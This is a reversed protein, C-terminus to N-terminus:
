LGPRLLPSHHLFFRLPICQEGDIQFQLADPHVKVGYSNLKHTGHGPGVKTPVVVEYTAINKLLHQTHDHDLGHGVPGSNARTVGVREAWATACLCLLAFLVISRSAQM